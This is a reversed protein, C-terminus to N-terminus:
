LSELSPPEVGLQESMVRAYHAYQEAAASHAGTARYLRILLLEIEEADPDAMLAQQALAIGREFAGTEQDQRLSREVRDLFAAHIGDRYAASWEEYLFDTGFRATYAVALQAVLEPKPDRRVERLLRQCLSSRSDVLESDLWVLDGKSALYGATTAETYSPEFIRRLFYCTQNLSNAAATPDLEPWLADQIQERTACYHPRTLLFALLSLVKRRVETGAVTRDGDIISIRGLDEVFAKQALRRTLDRAFGAVASGSSKSVKRLLRLDDVTGAASLLSAARALLDGGGVDAKLTRRLAPVWREPRLRVEDQIIGWAEAGLSDLRGALDEALISFYAGESPRLGEGCERLADRGLHMARLLAILKWWHWAQQGYASDQARDFANRLTSVGAGEAALLRAELALVGSRFAPQHGDESLSALQEHAKAYEQERTAMITVVFRARAAGRREHAALLQELYGLMERDPNGYLAEIEAADCIWAPDNSEPQRALSERILVRADSPRGLHMLARAMTMQAASVDVTASTGALLGLASSGAKLANRHNGRACETEAENILAVAEFRAHGASRSLEACESLRTCLEDLSGDTLSREMAASARAIAVQEADGYRLLVDCGRSHLAPEVLEIGLHMWCQAWAVRLKPGVEDFTREALACEAQADAFRGAAILCRTRLVDYWPNPEPDPFSRMFDEAVGLDGTGIIAPVAASLVRRVEPADGAAAWHRAALRWSIPQFATAAQRHLEVIGAEGIEAELGALLFERVLPHLRWSSVTGESRSLLGIRQAEGILRRAAQDPVGALQASTEVEVEDLLAARPLYHRLDPDLDGVVEQALYDYLHGEAGSMSRVFARVQVPTRGEVATKLLQLSAAWGHTRAQVDELVDDDLPHRYAQSFLQSTESPEFRLEEKGLEALESRARLTAVALPPTRRTAFVFTLNAPARAILREVASRISAVHEALYYDDLVLMSPSDGLQEFELLFTEIVSEFSVPEPSPETLLSETRRFLGPDVSRCSAVVYRLFVLGDTDDEDLRYWFTRIRSRRTFDAVLTTKGFGAEAVIYIIRCRVKSAMWDLLRDRRLTDDPLLPRQVKGRRLPFVARFQSQSAPGNGSEPEVAVRLEEMGPRRVGFPPGYSLFDIQRTDIPDAASTRMAPIM